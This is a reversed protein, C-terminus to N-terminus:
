RAANAGVMPHARVFGAIADASPGPKEIDLLHTAGAITTSVMQPLAEALLQQVETFVPATEGGIVYLVPQKVRAAVRQKDFSWAGLAPMETAFFMDAMTLADEYGGPIVDDIIQQASPRSIAQIFMAAAQATEGRQYMEMVPTMQQMMAQGSPVVLILAPEMLVLSHVLEPADLALQLAIVGGYSHGVVHAREIGLARILGACDRTQDEISIPGQSGTSGGYGRRHYRILRYGHLAPLHAVPLFDDKITSGHILVVPEGTGREEFELNIGDVSVNRMTAPATSM